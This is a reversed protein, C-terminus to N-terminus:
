NHHFGGANRTTLSNLSPNEDLHHIARKLDEILLGALDRSLGLRAVVRQAILDSRDAPMPYAPVQWGRVRLRDALDFLTFSPHAGEKIKWCCGPVGGRGDYIIEFPGLGKVQDSVWTGIDVCSQTVKTYGKRGLRVFNYYQCAVQGGPRSFNLGITPVHGGLYKVRFIMDGPLDHAERWVVWACGLPALGFKHGSGNISKVRPIRFDWALDPQVFPAVFGGSAADVHIPIDLGREEELDDLAFAIAQVPEYQLTFILGLTPIVGITNEDCRKVVEEPSMVLRNGEFPIQRLEVDFHRAFKHWCIHVSGCVLNPKSHPKKAAQRWKLKLALGALIAAESSGATSCGRANTADPSNWLDAVMRVCRSELEAMQPYEDRDIMNKDFCEDMLRRVEPEVWTQCLTALNQRSNGDLLLEDHVLQYAARPEIEEKPFENKPAAKSVFSSLLAPDTLTPSNDKLTDPRVINGNGFADRLNRLWIPEM